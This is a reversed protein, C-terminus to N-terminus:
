FACRTMGRTQRRLSRRSRGGGNSHTQGAEEPAALREQVWAEVAPLSAFLVGDGECRGFAVELYWGESAGENDEPSIPVIIAVLRDDAFVLRAPEEGKRTALSVSTFKVASTMEKREHQEPRSLCM